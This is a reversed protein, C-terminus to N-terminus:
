SADSYAVPYLIASLPIRRALSASADVAALLLGAFCPRM